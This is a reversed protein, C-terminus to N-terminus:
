DMLLAGIEHFVSFHQCIDISQAPNSGIMQSNLHSDYKKMHRSHTNNSEMTKETEALTTINAHHEVPSIAM